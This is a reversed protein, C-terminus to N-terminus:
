FSFSLSLNVGGASGPAVGVRRRLPVQEWRAAPKVKRGIFIGGLLGVPAGALAGSLPPPLVYDENEDEIAKGVLFGLAGGAVVGIIAGTRAGSRGSHYVEFRQVADPPLKVAGASRPEQVLLTDGEWAVLEGVVPNAVSDALQTAVRRTLHVRVWEGAAVSPAEQAALEPFAFPRALLAGALLLIWRM